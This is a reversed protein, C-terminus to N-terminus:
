ARDPRAFALGEQQVVAIAFDFRDVAFSREVDQPWTPAPHDRSLRKRVDAVLAAVPLARGRLLSEIYAACAEDEEAPLLGREGMAVLSAVRAGARLVRATASATVFGALFIAEAKRAAMVGQTGSSTRLILDRGRLNAAEIQTPSNDFDFDPIKAGDVEGALLANPFTSSRLERAREASDVLVVRAVGGAIAYAVTTAARLVDIIVAAGNAAAAGDLLRLRRIGVRQTM